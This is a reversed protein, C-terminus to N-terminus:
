KATETEPPSVCIVHANEGENSKCKTFSAFSFDSQFFSWKKYRPVFYLPIAKSHSAENTGKSRRIASYSISSRSLSVPCRKRCPAWGSPNRFRLHGGRRTAMSIIFNRTATVKNLFLASGHQMTPLSIKILLSTCTNKKRYYRCQTNTKQKFLFHFSFYM